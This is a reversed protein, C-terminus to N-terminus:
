TTPVGGTREVLRFVLKQIHPLDLRDAPDDLRATIDAVDEATFMLRMFDILFQKMAPLDKRDANQMQEGLALAVTGKIPHATYWKADDRLFHVPIEVPGDDDEGLDIALPNAAPGTPKKPARDQPAKRTAAPGKTVVVREPM